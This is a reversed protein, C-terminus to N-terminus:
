IASNAQTVNFTTEAIKFIEIIIIDRSTRYYL